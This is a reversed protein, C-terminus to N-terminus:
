IRFCAGRTVPWHVIVPDSPQLDLGHPAGSVVIDSGDDLVILQVKRGAIEGKYALAAQMGKAYPVGLSSNPGSLSVSLGVKLDAAQAAVAAAALAGAALVGRGLSMLMKKM